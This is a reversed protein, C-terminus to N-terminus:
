SVEDRSKARFCKLRSRTVATLYRYVPNHSVEVKFNGCVQSEPLKPLSLASFNLDHGAPGIEPKM